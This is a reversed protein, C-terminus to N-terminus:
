PKAEGQAKWEEILVRAFVRAIAEVGAYIDELDEAEEEDDEYEEEDDESEEVDEEEEDEEESENVVEAKPFETKEPEKITESPTIESLGNVLDYCPINATKCSALVSLSSEDGDDWLLFASTDAGAVIEVAKKIPDDDQVLSAPPMNALDTDPKAVLVIEKNKDKAFQAVFVQSQTAQKEIPMVLTGGDGKVYYHDEMLAEVNQRSTTGKGAVLVYYKDM